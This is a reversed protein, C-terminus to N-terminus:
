GPQSIGNLALTASTDDSLALDALSIIGVLRNDRNLVPLRRVQYENMYSAAYETTQDDFVYRAETGLLQSIKTEELSLGKAAARVTIDRDSLMGILQDNECIPLIGLDHQAMVEAAERLSDNPSAVIVDPTMIQSILMNM